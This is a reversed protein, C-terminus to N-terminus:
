APVAVSTIVGRFHHLLDIERSCNHCTMQESSRLDVFHSNTMAALREVERVDGRQEDRQDVSGWDVCEGTLSGFLERSRILGQPFINAKNPHTM